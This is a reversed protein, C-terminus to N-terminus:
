APPLHCVCLSWLAFMVFVETIPPFVASLCCLAQPPNPQLSSSTSTCNHIRVGIEEMSTMQRVPGLRRTRGSQIIVHLSRCPHDSPAAENGTVLRPLQHPLAVAWTM